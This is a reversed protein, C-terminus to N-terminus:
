IFLYIFYLLHLPQTRFFWYSSAHLEQYDAELFIDKKTFIPQTFIKIM